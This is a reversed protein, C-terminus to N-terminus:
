VATRFVYILTELGSAFGRGKSIRKDPSTLDKALIKGGPGFVQEKSGHQRVSFGLNGQSASLLVLPERRLDDPFIFGSRDRRNGSSCLAHTHTHTCVRALSPQERAECKESTIM